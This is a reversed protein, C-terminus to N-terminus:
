VSKIDFLVNYKITCLIDNFDFYRLNLKKIIDRALGLQYQAMRKGPADTDIFYYEVGPNSMARAITGLVEATTKGTRRNEYMSIDGILGELCLKSIKM